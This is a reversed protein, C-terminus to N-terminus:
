ILSIYAHWLNTQHIDTNLICYQYRKTYLTCLHFTIVHWKERRKKEMNQWSSSSGVKNPEECPLAWNGACDGGIPQPRKKTLKPLCSCIIFSKVFRIRINGIPYYKKNKILPTVKKKNTRTKQHWKYVPHWPAISLSAGDVSRNM